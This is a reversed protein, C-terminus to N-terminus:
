VVRPAARHVAVVYGAQDGFDAGSWTAYRRIGILGATECAVEYDALPTVPCGPPLHAADLGFGAVLWGGPVLHAALNHVVTDLTGSRLLAIVNGAALVLDFPMRGLDAGSLEALDAHEWQVTPASQRAVALMSADADVGVCDYGLEALRGAVRGTGCGADLVRAPATALSRCFTAEGHVDEGNASLAALREAMRAAYDAGSRDGALESWRTRPAPM